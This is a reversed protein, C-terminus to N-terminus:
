GKMDNGDKARVVRSITGEEGRGVPENIETALIRLSGEVVVWGEGAVAEVNNKASYGAPYNWM